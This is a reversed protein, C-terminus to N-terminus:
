LSADVDVEVQFTVVSDLKRATMGGSVDLQAEIQASQQLTAEDMVQDSDCGISSAAQEAASLTRACLEITRSGSVLQVRVATIGAFTTDTALRVSVVRVRAEVADVHDQERLQDVEDLLAEAFSLEETAGEATITRPGAGAATASTNPLTFQRTAEFSQTGSVSACAVLACVAILFAYAKM